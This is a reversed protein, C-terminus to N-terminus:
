GEGGEGCLVCLVDMADTSHPWRQESDSCSDHGLHTRARTLHPTPMSLSSGEHRGQGGDSRCPSGEVELEQPWPGDVPGAEGRGKFSPKARADTTHLVFCFATAGGGIGVARTARAGCADHAGEGARSREEAGRVVVVCVM